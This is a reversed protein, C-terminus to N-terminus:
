NAYNSFYSDFQSNATHMKEEDKNPIYPEAECLYVYKHEIVM